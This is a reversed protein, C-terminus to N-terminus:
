ALQDLGPKWANRPSSETADAPTQVGKSKTELGSKERQLETNEQVIQAEVQRIELQLQKVKIARVQVTETPDSNEAKLDRKLVELRQQLHALTASSVSAATSHSVSKTAPIM